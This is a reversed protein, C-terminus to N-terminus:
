TLRPYIGTVLDVRRYVQPYGESVVLLGWIHLKSCYTYFRILCQGHVFGGPEVM